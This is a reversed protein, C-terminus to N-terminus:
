RNTSLSNLWNVVQEIMEPDPTPVPASYDSCNRQFLHNMGEMEVVTANKMSRFPELNSKAEVQTDESGNLALIPSQVKQLYTQPNLKVFAVYWPTLLAKIRQQASEQTMGPVERLLSELESTRQAPNPETAIIEFIQRIAQNEGKLLRENQWVLLEKGPITMGAMSIVFDVDGPNEAACVLAITGGESHGLIGTRKYGRSKLFRVASLADQAFDLTTDTPKAAKSGGVGRDDYRLTAIGHNYLSDAITAFPKHGFIEEDRNQAGSGTVLVVAIEANEPSLLTGAMGDFTVEEGQLSQSKQCEQKVKVLTMPFFGGQTFIGNISEGGPNMIGAYTAGIAPMHITISSSDAVVKQCPIDYAGQSPSSLTAQLLSDSKSAVKFVIPMGAIKGEWRGEFVNASIGVAFVALVLALM